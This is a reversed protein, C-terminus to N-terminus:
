FDLPLKLHADYIHDRHKMLLPSKAANIAPDDATYVGRMMDNMPNKDAAMPELLQSFCAWYIDLATLEGGVFYKSGKTGQEELVQTLLNLIEAARRPAQDYPEPSFGYREQLTKWTGEEEIPDPPLMMMRRCWGFGWEGCIENSLGIVRARDSPDQPLLRPEPKLREAQMLIDIWKERPAENEFVAVPANAIGTWTVLDENAQGGYQAVPTYPINKVHYIAKAAESWPGPVGVTLALRMGGMARAEAAEVYDM